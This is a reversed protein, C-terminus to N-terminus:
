FDDAGLRLGLVRDATDGKGSILIVPLEGLERIRSLVMRGDDAGLSVDLVVLDPQSKRVEEIAGEADRAVTVPYGEGELVPVLLASLQQDDDVVLIRADQREVM